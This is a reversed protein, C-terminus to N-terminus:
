RLISLCLYSLKADQTYDSCTLGDFWAKINVKIHGHRDRLPQVLTKNNGINPSLSCFADTQRTLQNVWLFHQTSMLGSVHPCGASSIKCHVLCRTLTVRQLVHARSLCASTCEPPTAWASLSELPMVTLLSVASPGHHYWWHTLLFRLVESFLKIPIQAM